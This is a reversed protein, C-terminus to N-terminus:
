RAGRIVRSMVRAGTLNLLVGIGACVMGFPTFMFARGQANTLLTFGAFGLPVLTLVRASLRSQASQAIREQEAADRERLTAAARDLSESVNGGVRACLHLVHVVLALSAPGSPQQQLAEALTAGRQLANVTPDFTPALEAVRPSAFFAAALSEGSACRRALDDLAVALQQATRPPRPSPSLASSRLMTLM